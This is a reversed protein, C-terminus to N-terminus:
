QHSVLGNAGQSSTLSGLGSTGPDEPSIPLCVSLPGQHSVSRMRPGALALSSGMTVQSFRGRQNHGGPLLRSASQTIKRVRSDERHVASAHSSDPADRQTSLEELHAASMEPTLHDEDAENLSACDVAYVGQRKAYNVMNRFRHGWRIENPLYSSRAQTTNGTAEIIGELTVIIEFRSKFLERPGMNWFPSDSDIKHNIILPWILLAYDMEGDLQTGVKLEEQYFNIHEGEDTTVHRVMVARVHSELLTSDRLNGVRFQLYLSGNRQCIVANKSFLVTNKRSKPRALKAFVIGAMCAQIIVGVISQICELVLALECRASTGRYGYGITHQTEVSMLFASAWGEHMAFVCPKFDDPLKALTINKDNDYYAFDGHVYSILYWFVGFLTWSVFFSAAFSLLTWRWRMDVMTTFADKLFRSKKKNVRYLQINSEGNKSIIRQRSSKSHKARFMKVDGITDTNPEGGGFSREEDELAVPNFYSQARPVTPDEDGQVQVQELVGRENEITIFHSSSPGQYSEQLDGEWADREEAESSSSSGQEGVEPVASGRVETEGVMV